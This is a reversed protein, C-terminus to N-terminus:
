SVGRPSQVSFFDSGSQADTGAGDFNVLCPEHSFQPNSIYRLQDTEGYAGLISRLIFALCNHTLSAVLNHIPWHDVVQDGIKSSVPEAAGDKAAIPSKHWIL